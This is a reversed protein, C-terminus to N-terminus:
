DFFKGSSYKWILITESILSFAVVGFIVSTFEKFFLSLELLASQILILILAYMANRFNHRGGTSFWIILLLQITTITKLVGSYTIVLRDINDLNEALFLMLSIHLGITIFKNVKVQWKSLSYKKLLFLTIQLMVLELAPILWLSLKWDLRLM